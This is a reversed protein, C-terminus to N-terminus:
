RMAIAIAEAACAMPKVGYQSSRMPKGSVVHELIM